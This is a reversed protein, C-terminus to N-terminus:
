YNKFRKEKGYQCMDMGVALAVDVYLLQLCKLIFNEPCVVVFETAKLGFVSRLGTSASSATGVRATSATPHDACCIM